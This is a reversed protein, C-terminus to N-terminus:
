RSWSNWCTILLFSSFFRHIDQDCDREWFLWKLFNIEGEFQIINSNWCPWVLIKSILKPKKPPNKNNSNNPKTQTKKTKWFFHCFREESDCTDEEDQKDKWQGPLMDYFGATLEKGFTASFILVFTRYRAKLKLVFFILSFQSFAPLTSFYFTSSVEWSIWRVNKTKIQKPNKTKRNGKKKSTNCLVTTTKQLSCM